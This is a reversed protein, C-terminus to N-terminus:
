RGNATSQNPACNTWSPACTGSPSLLPGIGGQKGSYDLWGMAIPVGASHAVHYFGSKWHERRGRSSEPPMVLVLRPQQAFRKALQEVLQDPARRDVPIGGVLRALWGFPPKFLTHKGLWAPRIGM